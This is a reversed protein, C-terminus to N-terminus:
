PTEVVRLRIFRKDADGPAITDRLTRTETGDNNTVAGGISIAGDLSWAPLDGATDVHFQFGNAGANQRYRLTLFPGAAGDNELTIALAEGADPRWPDLGHAHELFNSLGDGDPDANRGSVNADNIQASTFYAAQWMAFSLGPLTGPSGNQALSARWNTRDDGFGNLQIRELAPGNGDPAVPWGGADAYTVVDVDIQGVSQGAVPEAPMQLALTEGDDDLNGSYQFIAVAPPVNHQVRFTSPPLASLVVIERPQLTVGTPFNFSAGRVRWTNAPNDPDFLPVPEGSINRLEIYDSEGAGAHYMIESIVVPGVRPGANGAGFSTTRQAVFHDVLVADRYRGFSVGAASAAFGATHVYGTLQGNAAASSLVVEGGQKNFSFSQGQGPTPNFQTEDFVLFAGSPITTGAPIQFKQPLASADSIWWHSVDVPDAGENVLEIAQLEGALPNVLLENVFIKPAFPDDAGPSGGPSSSARWNAADNPNSNNNPDVPVLSNGWGDPSVPWPPADLYNMTFIPAGGLDHLALQDGRNNLSGSYVGGITKGPYKAAFQVPNKVLLVFQNAGLVSGNPFLYEVGGSLSVGNLNLPVTGVNKIEVFEFEDGGVAGVDPPHYMVETVLLPLPQAVTFLAETLPSWEGNTNRVRAKLQTSQAIHLTGAYATGAVAGGAARPDTGDMTYFISGAANPNTIDVPFNQAVAGGFTSFLPAQTAPWLGESVFAAPVTAGGTSDDIYGDFLVRRRSPCNVLSGTTGGSLTYRTPDGRGNLWLPLFDTFTGGSVDTIMPAIRSKLQNYLASLNADTLAGDNFMHKQIRDAFLLRFELNVKLRTYFLRAPVSDSTPSGTILDNFSKYQPNRSFGGFGGEADWVSFRYLGSANRARDMVYNNGPWDATAAVVNLLLYDVVNVVDLRTKIGDYDAASAMTRSRAYNLLENYALVDGDAMVSINRVDFRANTGRAQQFFPERPRETINFYGKFVSNVYLNVFDGRVGVQGMNLFLRRVYEDRIFPNSIDNKGARLRINEYSAVSSGPVLPYDLPKAGYDNRFFLNLQPKQTASASWTGVNPTGSNQATLVYRPRSFPSGALRVGAASRLDPTAGTHLIEFAVPREAPQGSQMPAHYASPDPPVNPSTLNGSTNGIFQSWISATYASSTNPVIAMIGFPRYFTKAEEGSLCVAPLGQRAASQNILYTHTVIDSPVMGPAFARARLVRSTSTFVLAAGALSSAPGPESGDLTYRIAAGPTACSLLVSVSGAYFRGPNSVTPTAVIGSFLNGGNAAGPSPADSYKWTHDDVRVFSHFPLQRPYEPHFQQVLAGTEDFLGLYEGDSGLAFNAHAFGGALSRIDKGDCIIVLYGGPPLTVDPFVWKDREDPDDTLSWGDLAVPQNGDNFLEIWDVDSEPGEPSEEEEETPVGVPEVTGVLYKWVTNNPVLTRAGSGTTRLDAQLLLDANNFTYNHVQLALVNNGPVLLKAPPDISLTVTTNSEVDAVATRPTFTNPVGINRRAVEVGNLYAVFSDDYRVVLQLPQTDAAESSTVSFVKRVFVSPTINIVQATLNTGLTVGPSGAGIPGPGSSWELDDYNVTGWGVNLKGSALLAPDYLQGSPEVVGVFYKWTDTATVLDTVPTGTIRLDAKFYFTADSASANLAHVALVNTGEVLLPTTQPLAITENLVTPLIPATGSFVERNYAPQDHHIFKKAPGANRRAIEVGNLFAVFGDNYGVVFELPDSRLADGSSVVFSKRLYVTPSLYRMGAELRTAFPPPSNSLSGFGFPGPGSPWTADSFMPQYWRTGTGVQAIGNSDWQLLRESAGARIENIAVDARAPTALAVCMMLGACFRRFQLPPFRVHRPCYRVQSRDAIQRM